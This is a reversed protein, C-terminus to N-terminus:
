LRKVMELYGQHGTIWQLIQSQRVMTTEFGLKRYLKLATANDSVVNLTLRHASEAYAVTEAYTILKSALGQGRWVPDVGLMEIYVEDAKSRRNHDVLMMLVFSRLAGLIGNHLQLARWLWRGSDERPASPTELIIYGALTQDIEVVTTTQLHRQSLRLWDRIIEEAEHGLIPGFKDPFTVMWLRALTEVDAATAPRLIMAEIM